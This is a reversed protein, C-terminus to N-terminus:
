ARAETGGPEALPRVREYGLETALAGVLAPGAEAVTAPGGELGVSTMALGEIGCPTIHAFPELAPGVNLALGHWAVWRRIAIGISAIKRPGVWVGPRGPERRGAIGWGALARLVAGELRAVYAGVDRGHRGLDVIPYAVLQGPGHYTAQGGRASQVIPIGSERARGLHRPDGARGLTYVPPHELLLLADPAGALCAEVRDEQIRAAEEYPVVGLDAVELVRDTAAGTM